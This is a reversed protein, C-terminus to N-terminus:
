SVVTEVFRYGSMSPFGSGALWEFYLWGWAILGDEDEDPFRRRPMPAWGRPISIEKSSQWAVTAGASIAWDVYPDRDTDGSWYGSTLWARLTRDHTGAAALPTVEPTRWAGSRDRRVIIPSPGGYWGAVGQDAVNFVTCWDQRAEEYIAEANDQLLVRCLHADLSRGEALTSTGNTMYTRPM